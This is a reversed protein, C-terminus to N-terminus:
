PALLKGIRYIVGNVAISDKKSFNIAFNLDQYPAILYPETSSPRVTGTVLISDGMTTIKNANIFDTSLLHSGSIVHYKIIKDLSDVGLADIQATTNINRQRFANNVPAFLTYLATLSSFITLTTDKEIARAFLTLSTDASILEQLTQFPPELVRTLPYIIGNAAATYNTPLPITNIYLGSTTNSTFIYNSLTEL